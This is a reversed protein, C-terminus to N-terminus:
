DEEANQEAKFQKRLQTDRVIVIIAWLEFLILFGYLFIKWVFDLEQNIIDFAPTFYFLIPFLIMIRLIVVFM